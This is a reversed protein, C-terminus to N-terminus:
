EIAIPSPLEKKGISRAVLEAAASIKGLKLECYSISPASTTYRTNLEATLGLVIYGAETMRPNNVKFSSYAHAGDALLSLTAVKAKTVEYDKCTSIANRAAVSLDTYRAAEINDFETNAISGCGGLIILSTLLIARM